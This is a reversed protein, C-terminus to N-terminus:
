EVYACYYRLLVAIMLLFLACDRLTSVLFTSAEILKLSNCLSDTVFPDFIAIHMRCFETFCGGPLKEITIDVRSVLKELTAGTVPM